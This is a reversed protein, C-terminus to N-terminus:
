KPGRLIYRGWRLTAAVCPIAVVFSGVIVMGLEYLLPQRTLVIAVGLMIALIPVVVFGQIKIFRDGVLKTRCNPCSIWVPYPAFLITRFPIPQKCHPCLIMCTSVGLTWLDPVAM